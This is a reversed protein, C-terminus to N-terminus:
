VGNCPCVFKNLKDKMNDYIENKIENFVWIMFKDYGVKDSKEFLEYMEVIVFVYNDSRQM